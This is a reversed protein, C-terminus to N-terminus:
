VEEFVFFWERYTKRIAPGREREAARPRVGIWNRANTKRCQENTTLDIAVPNNGVAPWMTLPEKSNRMKGPVTRPTPDEASLPSDSVPVPAGEAAPSSSLPLWQPVMVLKEQKKTEPNYRSAAYGTDRQFEMSATYVAASVMADGAGAKLGGDAVAKLIDSTPVTATGHYSTYWRGAGAQSRSDENTLFYAADHDRERVVLEACVLRFPEPVVNMSNEHFVVGRPDVYKSLEARAWAQDVMSHRLRYQPLDDPDFMRTPFQSLWLKPHTVGTEPEVALVKNQVRTFSASMTQKRALLAEGLQAAGEREGTGAADAVELVVKPSSELTEDIDRKTEWHQLWDYSRCKSHHGWERLNAVELLTKVGFFALCCGSDNLVSKPNWSDPPVYKGLARSPAHLPYAHQVFPEWDSSEIGDPFRYSWRLLPIVTKEQSNEAAAQFRIREPQKVPHPPGDQLVAPAPAGDTEPVVLEEPPVTASTTTGPALLLVLRCLFAIPHLRSMIM